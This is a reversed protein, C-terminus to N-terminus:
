PLRRLQDSLHTLLAAVAPTALLAAFGAVHIAVKLWLEATSHTGASEDRLRRQPRQPGLPFRAIKLACAWCGREPDTPADSGQLPLRCRRCCTSSAM